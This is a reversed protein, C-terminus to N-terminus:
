SRFKPPVNRTAGNAPGYDDLYAIALVTDGARKASRDRRLGQHGGGSLPERGKVQALFYKERILAGAAALLEPLRCIAQVRPSLELLSHWWDVGRPVPWQDNPKVRADCDASLEELWKAPITGRLPIFGDRSLQAADAFSAVPNPVCATMASELNPGRPRCARENPSTMPSQTAWSMRVLHM